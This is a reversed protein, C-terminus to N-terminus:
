LCCRKIIVDDYNTNEKGKLRLWKKAFLDMGLDM